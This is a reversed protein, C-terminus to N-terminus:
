IVRNLMEEVEAMLDEGDDEGDGADYDLDEHANLSSNASLPAAIVVSALGALKLGGTWLSEVVDKGITSM